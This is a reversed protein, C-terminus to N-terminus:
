DNKRLPYVKGDTGWIYIPAQFQKGIPVELFSEYDVFFFPTLPSVDGEYRPPVGGLSGVYHEIAPREVDIVFVVTAKANFKREIEGLNKEYASLKGRMNGTYYFNSKTCFEFLLMTGKPYIIGWEPVSGLGRFYKEPVATGDMNSRYFRVLCETCALGHVVEALARKKSYILKGQYLHSVAVKNKTLRVLVSETRRHRTQNQGTFWLQFHRKTAWHFVELADKYSEITITQKSM